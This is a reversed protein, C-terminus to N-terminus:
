WADALTVYYPFIYDEGWALILGSATAVIIAYPIAVSANIAEESIHVPGEFCGSVFIM